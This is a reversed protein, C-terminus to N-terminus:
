GPHLKSSGEGPTYFQCWNAGVVRQLPCIQCGYCQMRSTTKGLFYKLGQKPLETSINSGALLRPQVCSLIDQGLTGLSWLSAPPSPPPPYGLVHPSVQTGGHILLLHPRVGTWLQPDPLSCPKSQSQVPFFFSLQRWFWLIMSCNINSFIRLNM